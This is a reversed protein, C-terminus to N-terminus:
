MKGIRLYWSLIFFSGIIIILIALISAISLFNVAPFNFAYLMTLGLIITIIGGVVEWKWAIYILVFFLLWPLANTSNRIIGNIGGGYEEAGSLLAFIFVLIGIVSATFRAINRLLNATKIENERDM